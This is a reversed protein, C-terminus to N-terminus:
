DTAAIDEPHVGVAGYVFDYAKTLAVTDRCGRMSAGINVIKDVNGEHHLTSLLSDRDEDFAADDYHAHTDFIM